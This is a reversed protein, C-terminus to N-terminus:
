TKRQNKRKCRESKIIKKNYTSECDKQESNNKEAGKEAKKEKKFEIRKYIRWKHEVNEKQGGKIKKTRWKKHTRRQRKHGENIGETKKLVEM